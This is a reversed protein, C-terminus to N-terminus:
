HSTAEAAKDEHYFGIDLRAQHEALFHALEYQITPGGGTGNGSWCFSIWYEFGLERLERIRTPDQLCSMLYAIHVWPDADSTMGDSSLRWHFRPVSSTAGVRGFSAHLRERRGKRGEHDDSFTWAVRSNLFVPLDPEDDSTIHLTAFRM